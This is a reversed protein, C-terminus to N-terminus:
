RNLRSIEGTGSVSQTVAAAGTYKIDGSGSVAANLTQSARVCASGSGRIAADVARADLKCLDADGSGNIRLTVQDASGTATFDGSGNGSLTLVGGRLGSIRADGSGRLKVASLSPLTITIVPSKRTSYSGSTEIQLVGNRSTTAIRSLLNDDATVSVSYTAGLTIVLDSADSADIATFPATTRTDTVIKGSGITIPGDDHRVTVNSNENANESASIVHGPVAIMVAMLGTTLIKNM